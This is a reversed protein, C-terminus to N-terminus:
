YFSVHGRSAGRILVLRREVDIVRQQILLPVDDVREDWVVRHVECLGPVCPDVSLSHADCEDVVSEVVVVVVELVVEHTVRGRGAWPAWHCDVLKM